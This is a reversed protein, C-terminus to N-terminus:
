WGALTWGPSPPTRGRVMYKSVSREGIDIGLKLLEGHILPPDSRPGRACRSQGALGQRRCLPISVGALRDLLSVLALTDRGCDRWCRIIGVRM